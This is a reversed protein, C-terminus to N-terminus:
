YNPLSHRLVLRLSTVRSVVILALAPRLEKSSNQRLCNRNQRLGIMRKRKSVLLCNENRGLHPNVMNMARVVLLVKLLDLPSIFPNFVDVRRTNIRDKGFAKVMVLPKQARQNNHKNNHIGLLLSLYVVYAVELLM